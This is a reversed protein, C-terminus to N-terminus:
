ANQEKRGLAYKGFDFVFNMGPAPLAERTDCFRGMDVPRASCLAGPTLGNLFAELHRRTYLEGRHSCLVHEFPLALLGRVNRMYQEAPLAEDFFLWTCPNWDDGTLLLSRQPVYVVASGPTHGPCPIVQASLGGLDFTCGDLPHPAAFVCTEFDAPLPIGKAQAQQRVRSRQPQATYVDWFAHDAAHLLVREFWRAGLAHDHHVHTLIVTLPLPTIGRVFAHVDELGYGCDVLLAQRSGAILTLYVGMADCIHWVGPLVESANMRSM